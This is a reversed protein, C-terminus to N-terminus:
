LPYLSPEGPPRNRWRKHVWLWQEPHARVYNEIVRNFRQTNERIDPEEDETLQLPVAPEFRLRYKRLAEDWFLFGPVVAAGTRRAIRALGTTTAAPIGFFDVFIGEDLSTNQDALIGVTGGDHLVRLMARAANNKEIPQNGSLCRYYNVLADVRPNEIARALFSLPHGYLAQAFPALEWASMHGTLFIVGKGKQRASQFNESGDLVVLREINERSLRPFHAFEAALCGLNRVMGRIIKSRQSENIDPFALRLNVKAARRLPPRFFFLLWAIGHATARALPRPLVGLLKLITWAGAYELSQRMAPWETMSSNRSGVTTGAATHHAAPKTVSLGAIPSLAFSEIRVIKAASGAAITRPIQRQLPSEAM